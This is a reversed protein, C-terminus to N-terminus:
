EGVAYRKIMEVEGTDYNWVRITKDEGSTLFIPKWACVALSIIAGQHIPQGLISFVNEHVQPVDPGWIKSSYLQTRSTTVLLADQTYNVTM